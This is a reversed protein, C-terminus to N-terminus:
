ENVEVIKEEGREEGGGWLGIGSLRGQIEM